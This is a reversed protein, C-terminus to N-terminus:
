QISCSPSVFDFAHVMVPFCSDLALAQKVARRSTAIATLQQRVSEPRDAMASTRWEPNRCSVRSIRSVRSVRVRIKVKVVFTVKILRPIAVKRFTLGNDDLM